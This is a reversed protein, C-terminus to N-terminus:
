GNTDTEERAAAVLGKGQCHPCVVLNKKRAWAAAFARGSVGHGCEGCILQDDPHLRDCNLRAAAHTNVPDLDIYFEDNAGCKPCVIEATPPQTKTHKDPCASM